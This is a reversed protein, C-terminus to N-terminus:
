QSGQESPPGQPQTDPKAPDAKSPTTPHFARQPSQRSEATELITGRRWGSIASELDGAFSNLWMGQTFLDDIHIGENRELNLPPETGHIDPMKGLTVFYLIRTKENLYPWAHAIRNRAPIIEREFVSIEGKLYPGLGSGARAAQRLRECKVRADMGRILLDMAELDHQGLITALASTLWMEAVGFWTVFHGIHLALEGERGSLFHSRLPQLMDDPLREIM